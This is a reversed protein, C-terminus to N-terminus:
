DNNGALAIITYQQNRNTPTEYEATSISIIGEKVMQNLVPRWERAPIGMAVQLMSHSLKPYISLVHQIKGRLLVIEDDMEAPIPYITGRSM